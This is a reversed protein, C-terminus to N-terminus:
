EGRAVLQLDEALRQSRSVSFVQALLEGRLLVSLREYFLSVYIAAGGGVNSLSLTLRSVIGAQHRDLLGLLRMARSSCIVSIVEALKAANEPKELLKAYEVDEIQDVLNSLLTLFEEDDDIVWHERSDMVELFRALKASVGHWYDRIEASELRSRSDIAGM